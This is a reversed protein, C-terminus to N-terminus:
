NHGRPDETVPPALDGKISDSVKFRSQMQGGALNLDLRDLNREPYPTYIDTSIKM